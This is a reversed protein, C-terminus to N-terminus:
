PYCVCQLCWVATTVQFVLWRFCFWFLHRLPLDGSCLLGSVLTYHFIGKKNNSNKGWVWSIDQHAPNEEQKRLIEEIYRLKILKWLQFCVSRKRKKTQSFIKKGQELTFLSSSTWFNSLFLFVFVHISHDAEIYWDRFAIVFHLAAILQSSCSLLCQSGTWTSWTVTVTPIFNTCPSYLM